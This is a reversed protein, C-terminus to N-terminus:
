QMNTMIGLFTNVGRKKKKENECVTFDCNIFDTWIQNSNKKSTIHTTNVPLASFNFKITIKQIRRASHGVYYM